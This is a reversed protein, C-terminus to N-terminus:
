SSLCNPFLFIYFFPKKLSYFYDKEVLLNVNENQPNKEVEFIIPIHTRQKQSAMLKSCLYKIKM